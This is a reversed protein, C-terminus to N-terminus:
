AKKWGLINNLTELLQGLRKVDHRNKMGGLIGLGEATEHLNDEDEETIIISNTTWAINLLEKVVAPSSLSKYGEEVVALQFPDKRHEALGADLDDAAFVDFDNIRLEEILPEISVIDSLFLIARRNERSNLILPEERYKGLV